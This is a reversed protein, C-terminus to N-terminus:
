IRNAGVPTCKAREANVNIFGVHIGTFTKRSRTRVMDHIIQSRDTLHSGDVRSFACSIEIDKIPYDNSNHLTFTVLANSGLGARRWHQSLIKLGDVSAPEAPAIPPLQARGAALVVAEPEAAATLRVPENEATDGFSGKWSGLGIGLGVVAAVGLAALGLRFHRSHTVM